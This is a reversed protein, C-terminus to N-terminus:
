VAIATGLILWSLLCMGVASAAVDFTRKAFRYVPRGEFNLGQLLYNPVDTLAYIATANELSPELGAHKMLEEISAQSECDTQSSGSKVGDANPVVEARNAELRSNLQESTQSM